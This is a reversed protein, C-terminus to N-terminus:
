DNKNAGKNIVPMIKERRMKSKEIKKKAFIEELEEMTM